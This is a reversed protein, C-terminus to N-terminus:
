EEKTSGLYYQYSITFLPSFFRKDVIGNTGYPTQINFNIESRNNQWQINLEPLVSIFGQEKGQTITSSLTDRVNFRNLVNYSGNNYTFSPSIVIEEAGLIEEIPFNYSIQPSILYAKATEGKVKGGFMYSGDVGFELNGFSQNIISGSVENILYRKFNKNGIFVLSRTASFDFMFHDTEKYFGLDFDVQSLPKNKTFKNDLLISPLCNIYLGSKHNYTLEPNFSPNSIGQPIGVYREASNAALGIVVHSNEQISEITTQAYATTFVNVCLFNLILIALKKM